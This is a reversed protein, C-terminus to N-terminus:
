AYWLMAGSVRCDPALTYCQTNAEAVVCKQDQLEALALKVQAESWGTAIQLDGIHIGQPDAAVYALVTRLRRGRIEDWSLLQQAAPLFDTEPATESTIEQIAPQGSQPSANSAAQLLVGILMIAMGLYAVAPLHEHMLFYAFTVSLLPELIALFAISLATVYRQMWITLVVPLLVTGISTYVLVAVDIRTFTQVSSWRGFCLALGFTVCAMVLFQVGLVPWIQNPHEEDSAIGWREILFACVTFLSGGTAALLDAQWHFSSVIWLCLSGLFLCACAIWTLAQIRQRFILLSIFTAVIGDLCM